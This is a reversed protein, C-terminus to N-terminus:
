YLRGGRSKRAARWNETIVLWAAYQLEKPFVQYRVYIAASKVVGGKTTMQCRHAHPITDVHPPITVLVHLLKM